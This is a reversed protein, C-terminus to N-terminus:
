HRRAVWVKTDVSGGGGGGGVPSKPTAAARPRGTEAKM